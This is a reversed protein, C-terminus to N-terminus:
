EELRYFMRLRKPVGHCTMEPELKSACPFAVTDREWLFRSDALQLKTSSPPHHCQHGSEKRATIARM